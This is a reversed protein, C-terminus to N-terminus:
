ARDGGGPVKVGLAAMRAAGHRSLALSHEGGLLKGATAEDQGLGPWMRHIGTVPNGIIWADGPYGATLTMYRGVRKNVVETLYLGLPVPASLWATEMQTLVADVGATTAGPSTPALSWPKVEIYRWGDPGDSAERVRFDPMWQAGPGAFVDPEYEWALGPQGDLWAAFYGELRSRMRMGRYLVPRARM